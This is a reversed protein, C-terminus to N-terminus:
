PTKKNAAENITNAPTSAAGSLVNGLVSAQLPKYGGYKLALKELGKGMKGGTFDIAAGISAEKLNFGSGFVSKNAGDAYTLKGFNSGIANVAFAEPNVATLFLSTGNMNKVNELGWGKEPANQLYQFGANLGVGVARETLGFSLATTGYSSIAGGVAPAAAIAVPAAVAVAAGGGLFALIVDPAGARIKQQTQEYTEYREWHGNAETTGDKKRHVRLTNEQSVWYSANGQNDKHVFFSQKKVEDYLKEVSMYEMRDNPNFYGDITNGKNLDYVLRINKLYEPPSTPEQGDLDVFRIPSNGTSQYPSYYAFQKALPDVSLFRGLRVDLIRAGYDLNGTGTSNDLEKGNFGYRYGGGANYKRGPMGMGFPYYDNATVIDAVYYDIIGDPTSSIKAGTVLNYVGDDIGPKKDSITVLVNGLHNSLEFFKNGRIFTSNIGTGGVLEMDIDRNFIGLRSSGYMHTERLTMHGAHVGASKEYVSMVNGSADRVYFSQKGNFSKSVRNGSADYGYEILGSGKTISAIKGYVNWHIDSIGEANDKILNGIADYQYNDTSQALSRQSNVQAQSLSTQSDIDETYNSAAM